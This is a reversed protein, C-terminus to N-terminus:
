HRWYKDINILLKYKTNDPQFPSHPYKLLFIFKGIQWEYAFSGKFPKRVLKKLNNKTTKMKGVIGDKWNKLSVWGINM